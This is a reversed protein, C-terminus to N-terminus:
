YGSVVVMMSSLLISAIGGIGSLWDTIGKVIRKHEIYENDLFM